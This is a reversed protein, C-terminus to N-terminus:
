TEPHDGKPPGFHRVSAVLLVLSVGFISVGVPVHLWLQDTFGLGIQIMEATFLGFSALAFWASQQHRRWCIVAVIVQLLSIATIVSTGTIQHLRLASAQGDLFSGASGAQALVVLCHVFVIIRLLWVLNTVPGIAPAGPAGEAPLAESRSRRGGAM